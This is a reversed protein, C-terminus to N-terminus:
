MRCPFRAADDESPDFRVRRRSSVKILHLNVFWRSMFWTPADVTKARREREKGLDSSESQARTSSAVCQKTTTTHFASQQVVFGANRKTRQLSRQFFLFLESVKKGQMKMARRLHRIALPAM